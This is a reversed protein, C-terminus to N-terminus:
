IDWEAIKLLKRVAKAILILGVVIGIIILPILYWSMTTGEIYEGERTWYPIGVVFSLIGSTLMSILIIRAVKKM